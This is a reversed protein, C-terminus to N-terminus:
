RVPPGVFTGDPQGFNKYGRNPLLQVVPSITGSATLQDAAFKDIQQARTCGSLASGAAVWLSGLPDIDFTITFPCSNEEFLPAEVIITPSAMIEGSGTLQDAPIMAMGPYDSISLPAKWVWLNGQADFVGRSTGYGPPLDLVLSPNRPGSSTRDEPSFRLLEGVGSVQGIGAWSVWMNDSKDFTLGAPPDEPPSTITVAPTPSGSISIQDPPFETVTDNQFDSVWLDGESDFGIGWPFLFPSDTTQDQLLVTFKANRKPSGPALAGLQRPTLEGIEGGSGLPGQFAVWLNKSADFAVALPRLGSDIRFALRPKRVGGKVLARGQFESIFNANLIWVGFQPKKTTRAQAAGVVIATALAGVALVIITSKHCRAM